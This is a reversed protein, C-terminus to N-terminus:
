VALSSSYIFKKDVSTRNFVSPRQIRTEQFYGKRNLFLSLLYKHNSQISSAEDETILTFLSFYFTGQEGQCRLAQGIHRYPFSVLTNPQNKATFVENLEVAVCPLARGTKSSAILLGAMSVMALIYKPIEYPNFSSDEVLLQIVVESGSIGSKEFGIRRLGNTAFILTSVKQTHETKYVRLECIPLPRSPPEFGLGSIQSKLDLNTEAIHKGYQMEFPEFPSTLEPFQVRSTKETKIKKQWARDIFIDAGAFWDSVTTGQRNHHAVFIGVKELLSSWGHNLVDSKLQRIINRIEKRVDYESFTYSLKSSVRLFVRDSIDREELLNAFQHRHCQYIVDTKEFDITKITELTILISTEETLVKQVTKEVPFIIGISELACPYGCELLYILSSELAERIHEKDLSSFEKRLQTVNDKERSGIPDRSSVADLCFEVPVPSIAM